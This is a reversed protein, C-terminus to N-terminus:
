YIQMLGMEISLIDMGDAYEIDPSIEQVYAKSFRLAEFVDISVLRKETGQIYYIKDTGNYQILTGTPHQNIIIDAGFAYNIWETVPVDIIKKNWTSGYLAKAIEETRIWRLIGGPEVAYVKPDSEIKLLITGPRVTVSKELTIEQLQSAPIIKINLWDSYWTKYITENPFPHRKNDSGYYYVSPSFSSKILDGASIQVFTDTIEENTTTPPPVTVIPTAPVPSNTSVISFNANSTDSTIVSGTDNYVEIKVKILDSSINPVIWAYNGDNAEMEKIIYPFSAGQDLSYSLKVSSINYGQASWSINQNTGSLWSEGGNPSDINSATSVIRGGGSCTSSLNFTDSDTYNDNNDYARVYWTHDGCSLSNAPAASTNTNSINDQSLASDVYLQYKSLGSIDSSANWSLSPKTELTASNNAPSSLSFSAPGTVDQELAFIHTSYGGSYTFTLSGSSDSLCAGDTCTSGTIATTSAAGDLKFQYYTDSLLDGIVYVTSTAQTQFTGATSTAAWQKNKTGTTLWSDVTIDMYQSTSASYYGGVPTISFDGTVATSSAATMGYQGDSYLRVSGTVPIDYTSFTYPPQYEYAGIDPTGYISNGAYDSTLSVDTGADICPSNSQLSLDYNEADKFLPDGSVGNTESNGSYCNYDFTGAGMTYTTANTIANNKATSGSPANVGTTSQNVSNNYANANSSLTISTSAYSFLNYSATVDGSVTVGSWDGVEPLGSSNMTEEAGIGDDNGSTFLTKNPAYSSFTLGNTVSALSKVIIGKGDFPTFDIANSITMPKAVFLTKGNWTISEPTEYVLTTTTFHEGMTEGSHWVKEWSGIQFYLKHYTSDVLWLFNNSVPASTEISFKLNADGGYFTNTTHTAGASVNLNQGTVVGNPLLINLNDGMDDYRFIKYGTNDVPWMFAYATHVTYDQTYDLKWSQIHENNQWKYIRTLRGFDDTTQTNGYATSTANATFVSGSVTQNLALNDGMVYTTGDIDLTIWGEYEHNQHAVGFMFVDSQVGVHGSIAIPQSSLSSTIEKSAMYGWSADGPNAHNHNTFKIGTIVHRDSVTDGKAEIQIVDGVSINSGIHVYATNTNDTLHAAEDYEGSTDLDLGSSSIVGNIKVRIIGNVSVNKHVGLYANEYNDTATYTAYASYQNYGSLSDRRKAVINGIAYDTWTTVAGSDGSGNTYTFDTRVTETAVTQSSGYSFGAVEWASNGGSYQKLIWRVWKEDEGATDAGNIEQYIYLIKANATSDAYTLYVTNSAARPETIIGFFLFGACFV